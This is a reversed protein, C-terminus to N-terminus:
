LTWVTEGEKITELVKIEKISMPEVKLPNKDLIAFDAVKGAKLTGKKDEEFYEYAGGYTAARLAEYPTIRQHEGVVVGFRSIRNVAAWMSHLMNPKTVPTDQHLNIVHGKDLATRCPSVNAGRIPGFNKLHIDGWFYTHGVFISPIMGITMMRELQDERVTQSHIMVPRTAIIDEKPCNLKEFSAVLQESAQDGNCHTLLQRGESVARTVFALAEEDKLIPYGCYDTEGEYPQSMWATKGQPSGDLFMKYGGLKVHNKYGGEYEKLGDMEEKSVNTIMMYDVVDIKLKGQEGLMSLPQLAGKAMDGGNQATTVGNMLYLEQGDVMGAIMEEPTAKPMVARVGHFANEEMHGNLEGTTEDKCYKGGQGFESDKTLGMKDLVFTNVSGMHGSAHSVIVGITTSVKDLVDRTPHTGEALFNHDYNSGSVFEGDKIGNKEIFAKLIAVIDDMNKAESLDANKLSQGVSAFHSHPDVFGPILTKGELDILEADSEMAMLEEKTGLAKIIGDCVLLAEAYEGEKEVTIIDGNFFIKKMGEGIISGAHNHALVIMYAEAYYKGKRKTNNELMEDILLPSVNRQAGIVIM